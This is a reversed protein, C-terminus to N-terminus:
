KILFEPKINLQLYLWQGSLKSTGPTIAKAYEMSKTAAMMSVGCELTTIKNLSYSTVLDVESGLYGPVANGSVDKMKQALSFYHYDLWAIFRKNKSGYKIKLFLDNLGGAPSGTGAYFFDMLGWFKHPTGYLPDFRHNTASSSFADNGSLHDWGATYTFKNKEIALSVTSTTASVKTGTRDKGGQYYFGGTFSVNKEKGFASTVLVGTTVRGYSGKQNFHLGYVYGPISNVFSTQVSDLKSKGFQDAVILGSVKTDKVTKAVYLYQLAKYMQTQGNTSASNIVAPLGNKSSVGSSNVLPIYGKPTAAVLGRSDNVFPLVNAPTYFNGNVNFAETNRSFAFGADAQWGKNLLKFVIADHRRAQQSWDLNGLLRSDDYVLEQRGTKISFYEVSPKKFSGDKKNTLIIEAWAEHIGLRSGDEETITSADEGWVRVDQLSAQFIVRSQKYNFTLRTRQYIFFAADNNILRLTGVGNRFETRPRLQASLTLQATVKNISAFHLVATWFIIQLIKKL